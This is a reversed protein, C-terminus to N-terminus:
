DLGFRRLRTYFRTCSLGLTAAAKSCNWGVRSGFGTAEGWARLVVPDVRHSYSQVDAILQEEGDLVPGIGATMRPLRGAPEFAITYNGYDLPVGAGEVHRAFISFTGADEVCAILMGDHPVLPQARASFEDLFRHPDFAGELSRAFAAVCALLDDLM